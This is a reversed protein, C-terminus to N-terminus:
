NIKVTEANLLLQFKISQCSLQAHFIIVVVLRITLRNEYWQKVQIQKSTEQKWKHFMDFLLITDQRQTVVTALRCHRRQDTPSFLILWRTPFGVIHNGVLDSM